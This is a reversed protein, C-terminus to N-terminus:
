QEPRRALRISLTDSIEILLDEGHRRVHVPEGENIVPSILQAGRLQYPGRRRYLETKANATSVGVVEFMGDSGIRFTLRMTGLKSDTADSIWHGRVDATADSSL